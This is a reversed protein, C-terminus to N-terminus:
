RYATRDVPQVTYEADVIDGRDAHRNPNHSRVHPGGSFPARSAIDSMRASAELCDRLMGRRVHNKDRVRCARRAMEAQRRNEAESVANSESLYAIVAAITLLILIVGVAIAVQAIYLHYM